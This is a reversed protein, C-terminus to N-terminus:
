ARPCVVLSKDEASSGVAFIQRRNNPIPNIRWRKTQALDQVTEDIIKLLASLETQNRSLNDTSLLWLTVVEIGLEECWGLFEAIKEGGVRHGHATSSGQDAAWRRNGDLIVGVHKPLENQPLASVLRHGYIEYAFEGIASRIKGM